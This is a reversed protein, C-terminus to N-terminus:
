RFLVRLLLVGRCPAKYGNQGRLRVNHDRPDSLLNAIPCEAETRNSMYTQAETRRHVVANGDIIKRQNIAYGAGSQCELQVITNVHEKTAGRATAKIEFNLNKEEVLGLELYHKSFGKVKLVSFFLFDYNTTEFKDQHWNIPLLNFVECSRKDQIYHYGKRSAITSKLDDFYILQATLNSNKYEAPLLSLIEITTLNLITIEDERPILGTDYEKLKLGEKDKEYEFFAYHSDHHVDNSLSNRALRNMIDTLEEIRKIGLPNDEPSRFYAYGDREITGSIHKAENELPPPDMALLSCNFLSILIFTHNNNM